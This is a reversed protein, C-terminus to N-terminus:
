LAQPERLMLPITPGGGFAVESTVEFGFRRYYSVNTPNSSELYAPVGGDDCRKLIPAILAGGVGTGQVSPDTGLITLYWHPRKPREAEFRALARATVPLRATGITRWLANALKLQQLLGPTPSGPPLWLAGGSAADNTLVEGHALDQDIGLRFFSAGVEDYHADDPLLWRVFPNTAFARALTTALAPADARTARRVGDHKETLGGIASM